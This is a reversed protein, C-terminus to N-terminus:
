HAFTMPASPRTRKWQSIPSPSVRRRLRSRGTFGHVRSAAPRGHGHRASRRIEHSSTLGLRLADILQDLFVPVGHDIEVDTPPPVSTTAVKARCRRIIEDRNVAIFEHLM